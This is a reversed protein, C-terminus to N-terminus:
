CKYYRYANNVPADMVALIVSVTSRGFHSIKTKM